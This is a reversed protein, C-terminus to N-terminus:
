HDIIIMGMSILNRIDKLVKNFVTKGQHQHTLPTQRGRRTWRRGTEVHSRGAEGGGGEGLGWCRVAQVDPRRGKATWDGCSGTNPLERRDPCVVIM